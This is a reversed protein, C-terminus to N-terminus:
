QDDGNEAKMKKTLKDASEKLEKISQDDPTMFDTEIYDFEMQLSKGFDEVDGTRHKEYKDSLQIVQSIWKRAEENTDPSSMRLYQKAKQYSQSLLYQLIDSSSTKSPLELAAKVAELNESFCTFLISKEFDSCDDIYDRWDRRTLAQFNWFFKKYAEVHEPKLMSAYKLNLIQALDTPKIGKILLANLAIRLRPDSHIDYVLKLYNFDPDKYKREFMWLEHVEFIKMWKLFDGDHVKTEIQKAVPKPINNFVLNYQTQITETDVEPLSLDKLADNIDSDESLGKTILFRIYLDYPKRM